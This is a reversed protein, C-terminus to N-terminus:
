TPFCGTGEKKMIKEFYQDAYKEFSDMTGNKKCYARARACALCTRGKRHWPAINEPVFEHGRPCHTKRSEHCTGHRVKDKNNESPTDWRLNSLYNNTKVGDNHCAVMGEPCPGVFTELVLRSVRKHTKKGSLSLRVIRYGKHNTTQKLERGKRISVRGIRDTTKRDKSRVKGQDSVEYYEEWGPLPTWEESM